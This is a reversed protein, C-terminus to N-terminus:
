QQPHVGSKQDFMAAHSIEIPHMSKQWFMLDQNQVTELAAKRLFRMLWERRSEGPENAILEM